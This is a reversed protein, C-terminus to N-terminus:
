ADGNKPTSSEPPPKPARRRRPKREAAAPPLEPTDEPAPPPLEPADAPPPPLELQEEPAPLELPAEPEAEPAPAAGTVGAPLPAADPAVAPATPSASRAEEPRTSAVPAIRRAPPGPPSSATRRRYLSALGYFGVLIAVMGFAIGFGISTSEGDTLPREAGLTCPSPDPLCTGLVALRLPVAVLYLIAYVIALGAIFYLATAAGRGQPNLRACVGLAVAAVAFPIVVASVRSGTGGLLLAGIGGFAALGAAIWFTLMARPRGAPTQDM